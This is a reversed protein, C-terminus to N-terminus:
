QKIKEIEGKVKKFFDYREIREKEPAAKVDFAIKLGADIAGKVAGYVRSGKTHPTLGIDM